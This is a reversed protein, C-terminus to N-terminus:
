RGCLTALAMRVAHPLFYFQCSQFCLLSQRHICTEGIELEVTSPWGVGRTMPEIAATAESWCRVGLFDGSIKVGLEDFHKTRYLSIPVEYNM